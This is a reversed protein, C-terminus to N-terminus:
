SVERVRAQVSAQRLEFDIRILMSVAVMMIILSSGGYSVLPLTLGKTPMMGSAAGVNVFTQFSFWIGIGIALYGEYLRESVLAQHGLKLAKVALAFILFLAGLVGVYGLEEGLIAFVFDTHAEPLYEMKQISNGLGEGFWSGRGFAMLSQTLQYGSGFPDAWPDLFSTVRRMRYPEAIILTVVASVGVLILGIFQVMRAGALFLMGLSTVFMVVVSGLDPQALLLTAVVFLVAMPKMFGIFRERVESQRRVLYGALYVFLALKGFEAPQLNFPGLPLWRVSGNVSRGVLLVLVLMVIALLLMPGNYQQWRAMPVQLVFWSIGLAMVLFLGHRKVFMFPDDGLAIGEPISASAVIVLGVSMLALALVVLQRDYLGAPRAPLLWRQLFGAVARLANM